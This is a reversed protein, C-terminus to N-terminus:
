SKKWEKSHKPWINYKKKKLKNIWKKTKTKTKGSKNDQVQVPPPPFVYLSDICGGTCYTRWGVISVCQLGVHICAVFNFICACTTISIWQRLAISAYGFPVFLLLLMGSCLFYQFPMLDQLLVPLFFLSLLSYSVVAMAAWFLYM